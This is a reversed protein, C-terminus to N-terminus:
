QGVPSIYINTTSPTTTADPDYFVLDAGDVEADDFQGTVTLLATPSGVYYLEVVDNDAVEGDTASGGITLKVQNGSDYTEVFFEGSSTSASGAIALPARTGASADTLICVWNYGSVAVFPIDLYFYSRGSGSILDDTGFVKRGQATRDPSDTPVGNTGPLTIGYLVGDGRTGSRQVRAVCPGLYRSNVNGTLVPTTTTTASHAECVAVSGGNTTM